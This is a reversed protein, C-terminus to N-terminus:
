KRIEEQQTLNCLTEYSKIVTKEDKSEFILDFVLDFFIENILETAEEFNERTVQSIYVVAFKRDDEYPSFYFDHIQKLIVSRIKLKVEDNLNEYEEPTIIKNIQNLLFKRRKKIM